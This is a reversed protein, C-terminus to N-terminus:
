HDKRWSCMFPSDFALPEFGYKKYFYSLGPSAMLGVFAGSKFPANKELYHMISTMINSGIHQRQFEPTIIIDQIYFYMANDGVIRGMGIIRNNEM